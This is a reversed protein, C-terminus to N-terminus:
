NNKKDKVATLANVLDRPLAATVSAFNRMPAQLAGLLMALLTNRDPLKSLAQIEKESLSKGGLSGMRIKFPSTESVSETIAKAVPVPDKFSLALAVPGKFHESMGEFASGKSAIRALRNKIVHVEGSGGRVKKRLDGLSEVPMGRYETIFAATAKAFKEKLVEVVDSKETKNM